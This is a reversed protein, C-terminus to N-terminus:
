NSSASVKLEGDNSWGDVRDSSDFGVSSFGYWWTSGSTRRPTGQLRIVDDKSSGFAFTSADTTNSGPRVEVKLEGDNSWGDVRDSSDFGVSSFGFWLTSGSTRRPTGQLRIVDDKSSGFTFHPPEGLAQATSSPTPTAVTTPTISSDVAPQAAAPTPSPSSTPSVAIATSIPPSATPESGASM